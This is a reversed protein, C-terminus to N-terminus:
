ETQTSLSVTPKVFLFYLYGLSFLGYILVITWGLSNFVGSLTGSLAVLVGVAEAILLSTILARVTAPKTFRRASFCLLGVFLLEVGLFRSMLHLGPDPAIGYLSLLAAPALLLGVGYALAVISRLTLFDNIKM